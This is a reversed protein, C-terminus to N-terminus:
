LWLIDWRHALASLASLILVQEIAHHHVLLLDLRRPQALYWPIISLNHCKKLRHFGHKSKTLVALTRSGRRSLAGSSNVRVM